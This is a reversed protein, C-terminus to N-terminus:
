EVLSMLNLQQLMESAFTYTNRNLVMRATQKQIKQAPKQEEHKGFLLVTILILFSLNM